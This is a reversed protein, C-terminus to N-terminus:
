AISRDRDARVDARREGLHGRDVKLGSRQDRGRLVPGSHVGIHEATQVSCHGLQPMPRGSHIYARRGATAQPERHNAVLLQHGGLSTLPHTQGGAGPDYM